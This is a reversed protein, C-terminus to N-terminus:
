VYPTTPLTLHTYSVPIDFRKQDLAELLFGMRDSELWLVTELHNSPLNVWYNTRDNSTSGNLVAGIKQLPEFFSSNHNKSGEFMVHEFLHAFGTRGIEENKSGVHYWINVATVPLSHDEHLIIQLGNPLLHKSFEITKM